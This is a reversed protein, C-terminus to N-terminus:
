EEADNTAAAPEEACEVFKLSYKVVATGKAKEADDKIVKVAEKGYHKEILSYLMKASVNKKVRKEVLAISIDNGASIKRKGSAVMREILVDKLPKLDERNKKILVNLDLLASAQAEM